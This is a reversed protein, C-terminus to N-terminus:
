LWTKPNIDSRFASALYQKQDSWWSDQINPDSYYKVDVLEDTEDVQQTQKSLKKQFKWVIVGVFIALLIAVIILTIPVM